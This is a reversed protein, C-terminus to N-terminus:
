QRCSALSLRYLDPAVPERLRDLRRRHAKICKLESRTLVLVRDVREASRGFGGPYSLRPFSRMRASVKPPCARLDIILPDGKHRGVMDLNRVFCDFAQRSVYIPGDEARSASGQASALLILLTPWM